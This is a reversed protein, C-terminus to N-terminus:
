ELEAGMDRYHMKLESVCASNFYESHM